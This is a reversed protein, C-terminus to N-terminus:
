QQLQERGRDGSQFRIGDGLLLSLSPAMFTLTRLFLRSAAAELLFLLKLVFYFCHRALGGVPELLHPGLPPGSPGSAGLPLRAGWTIRCPPGSQPSLTRVGAGNHSNPRVGLFDGVGATSRHSRETRVGHITGSRAPEPSPAM